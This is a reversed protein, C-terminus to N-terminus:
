ANVGEAYQPFLISNKKYIHLFIDEVLQRILVYTARFTACGDALSTFDNTAKILSKILEGAAEHESELLVVKDYAVKTAEEQMLPPFM